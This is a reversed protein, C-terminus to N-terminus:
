QGLFFADWFMVTAIPGVLYKGFMKDVSEFGSVQDTPTGQGARLPATASETPEAPPPAVPPAPATVKLGADSGQATNPAQATPGADSSYAAPTALMIMLFFTASFRRM